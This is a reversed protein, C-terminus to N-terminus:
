KQCAFISTSMPSAQFRFKGNTIPYTEQTILNKATGKDIEVNILRLGGSSTHIAILNGSAWTIDGEASNYCNLGADVGIKRLWESKLAPLSSFIIRCGNKEAVALVTEGNVTRALVRGGSVPYFAPSFKAAGGFERVSPNGFFAMGEPTLQAKRSIDTHDIVFKMGLLKEMKEASIHDKGIVDVGYAFILINGPKMLKSRIYESEADTLKLPNLFYWVRHSTPIKELDEILYTDFKLGTRPLAPYQGSVFMLNISSDYATLSAANECTIVAISNAPDCIRTRGAIVEREAANLRAAVQTLRPDGFVWGNSFDYYRMTGNTALLAGVERELVAKSEALDACRGIEQSTHLTRIDSEAICLKGNLRASGEPIMFGGAEGPGRDSYRTPAMLMDVDPSALVKSLAWHGSHQALRGHTLNNVYGYYAGSLLRGGSIKKVTGAYHLIAKATVEALTNTFDIRYQDAGPTRLDGASRVLREQRSPIVVADFSSFNKNWAKNAKEISGYRARASEAFAKRFAESYDVFEGERQAGWYIWEWTIGACPVVGAVRKGYPKADLHRILAALIRDGEDLWKKSAFSPSQERVKGYNLISDGGDDKIVLADHNKKNFSQMNVNNVSDLIVTLVIHVEPNRALISECLNDIRSFDPDGNKDYQWVMHVWFGPVGSAFASRAERYNCPSQGMEVLYHTLPVKEQGNLLLQPVGCRDVIRSQPLQKEAKEKRLVILNLPDKTELRAHSLTIELKYVGDPLCRFYVPPLELKIDQKKEFANAPLVKEAVLLDSKEGKLRIAFEMERNKLASIDGVARLRPSLRWVTNEGARVPPNLDSVEIVTNVPPMFRIKGWPAVGAVGLNLPRNRAPLEQWDTDASVPASRWEPSTGTTKVMGNRYVLSLEALLGGPGSGNTVKCEIINKGNRLINKVDFRDPAAWDSKNPGVLPTRNFRTEVVDDGTVQFFADSIKSIDEVNFEHRFIVQKISKKEAEADWLWSANWENELGKALTVSVSRLSLPKKQPNSIYMIFSAAGGPPRVNGATAIRKPSDELKKGYIDAFSFWVELASAADMRWVLEGLKPIETSASRLTGNGPIVVGNESQIGDGEWYLLNRKFKGNRLLGSSDQDERKAGEPLLRISRIVTKLGDRSVADVRFGTIVDKWERNGALKFRIAKSGPRIVQRIGRVPAFPAGARSFYVTVHPNETEMELELIPFHKADVKIEPSFLYANKSGTGIFGIGKEVSYKQYNEPRFGHLSGDTFDWEQANLLLLGSLIFVSILKKEM